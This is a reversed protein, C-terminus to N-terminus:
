KENASGGPGPGVDFIAGADFMSKFREESLVEGNTGGCRVCKKAANAFLPAVKRCTFCHLYKM